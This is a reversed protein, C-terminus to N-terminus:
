AGERLRRFVDTGSVLKLPDSDAERDRRELESLFGVEEEVEEGLHDLLSRALEIQDERGMELAESLVDQMRKPM